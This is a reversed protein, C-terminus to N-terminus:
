LQKLRVYSFIGPEGHWQQEYELTTSGPFSVLGISKKPSLRTGLGACLIQVPHMVRNLM